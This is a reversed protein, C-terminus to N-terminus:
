RQRWLIREMPKGFSQMPSKNCCKEPTKGSGCKCLDLGWHNICHDCSGYNVKLRKVGKLNINFKSLNKRKISNSTGDEFFLTVAGCICNAYEEINNEM